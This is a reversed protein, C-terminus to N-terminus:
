RAKAAFKIRLLEQQKQHLQAIGGEALDLL